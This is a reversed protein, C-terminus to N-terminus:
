EESLSCVMHLYNNGTVKDEFNPNRVFKEWAYEVCKFYEASGQINTLLLYM